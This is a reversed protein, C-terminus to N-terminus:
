GATRGRVNGPCARARQTKRTKVCRSGLTGRGDMEGSRCAVVGALLPKLAASVVALAVALAAPQDAAQVTVVSIIQGATHATVISAASVSAAQGAACTRDSEGRASPV